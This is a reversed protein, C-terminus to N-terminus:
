VCVCVCVCVCLRVQLLGTENLLGGWGRQGARWEKAARNQRLHNVPENVEPFGEVGGYRGGERVGEKRGEKRGQSWSKKERRM